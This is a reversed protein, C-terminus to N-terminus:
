VEGKMNNYLALKELYHEFAGYLYQRLEQLPIKDVIADFFAKSLIRDAEKEDIGRTRLYFLHDPDLQAMTVGHMCQVDDAFIALQPQAYIAAKTSRIWGDHHQSAVTKQAGEHVRIHGRFVGKCEQAVMGKYLESSKTHAVSHDIATHNEIYGKGSGGYVGQLSAKSNKGALCVQLNNRVVGQTLTVGYHHLSSSAAQKIYTHHMQYTPLRSSTQLNYYGLTAGHEMVIEDVRNAFVDRRGCKGTSVVVDVKSRAGVVLLLRPHYIKKIGEGDTIHDHLILPQDLHTDPPVYLFTGQAFLATNLAVFPDKKYDAIHSFYRDIMSGYQLYAASLSLVVLGKPLNKAQDPDALLGNRLLIRYLPPDCAHVSAGNLNKHLIASKCGGEGGELPSNNNSGEESACPEQSASVEGDADSSSSASTYRDGQRKKSQASPNLYTVLKQLPTLSPKEPPSFFRLSSKCIARNFGLSITSSSISEPSSMVPRCCSPFAKAASLLAFLAKIM